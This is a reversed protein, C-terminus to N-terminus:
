KLFMKFYFIVKTSDEYKFALVYFIVGVLKFLGSIVSVGIQYLIDSTDSQILESGAYGTSYLVTSALLCFPLGIYSAYLNIVAWNIEINTTQKTLTYCSGWCFATLLSM